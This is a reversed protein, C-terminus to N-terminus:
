SRGNAVGDEFCETEPSECWGEPMVWVSGPSSFISISIDISIRRQTSSQRLQMAMHMSVMICHMFLPLISTFIILVKMSQISIHWIHALQMIRMDGILSFIHAIHASIHM